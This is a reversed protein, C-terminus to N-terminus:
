SGRPEARARAAHVLVGMPHAGVALELGGGVVALYNRTPDLTAHGLLAQVEVISAGSDLAATAFTHRLAHVCAGPPRRVAARLYWSEVLRRMSRSTFGTGDLRVFLRDSGSYPGVRQRREEQYVRIASATDLHVPLTRVKHGKGLVRMRPNDSNYVLDGAYVGCAESVRLGLSLLLAALAFDRAPWPHRARPDATTIAQLLAAADSSDLPQPNPPPRKPLQVAAHEMPNAALLGRRVLLSCLSSWAAALRRQSAAARTAGLQDLARGCNRPDLDGLVLHDAAVEARRYAAAPVAPKGGRLLTAPLEYGELDPEAPIQKGVVLLLGRAFIGADTVYGSVTAPARRAALVDVWERYSPLLPTSADVEAVDDFVLGGMRGDDGIV